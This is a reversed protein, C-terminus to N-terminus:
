HEIIYLVVSFVASYVMCYQVTNYLITSYQLSSYIVTFLQVNETLLTSGLPSISLGPSPACEEQQAWSHVTDHVSYM